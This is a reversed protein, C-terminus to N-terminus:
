NASSTLSALAAQIDGRAASGAECAQQLLLAGLAPFHSGSAVFGIDRATLRAGGRLLIKVAEVHGGDSARRLPTWGSPPHSTDVNAGKALLASIIAAHGKHCAGFLPTGFPTAGNVDAGRALLLEVVETHGNQAAIYCPTAGDPQALDVLAGKDLLLRAVELNGITSAGILPTSGLDSKLPCNPDAGRELLMRVVDVHGNRSAGYLPPHSAGSAVLAGKDLLLEVTGSHGGASAWALATSVNLDVLELRAGRKLLWEVRAKNGKWAAYMLRTRGMGYPDLEPLGQAAAEEASRLRKKGHPLDKLADFLAEEGWTERCLGVFPDVERAYGNQATIILASIFGQRLKLRAVEEAALPRLEAVEARLRALESSEARLRALESSEARLRALEASQRAIEAVQSSLTPASMVSHSTAPATAPASCFKKPRGAKPLMGSPGFKKEVKKVPSHHRPKCWYYPPYPSPSYFPPPNCYSHFFFLLYLRSRSPGAWSPSLQTRFFAFGCHGRFDIKCGVKRLEGVGEAVTPGGQHGYM